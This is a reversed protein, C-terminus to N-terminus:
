KFKICPVDRMIKGLAQTINEIQADLFIPEVVGDWEFTDIRFPVYGRQWLSTPDRLFANQSSGRGLHSEPVAIDGEVLAPTTDPPVFTGRFSDGSVGQAIVYGLLSFVWM